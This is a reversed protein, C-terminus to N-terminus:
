HWLNVWQYFALWGVEMHDFAIGVPMQNKMAPLKAYRQSFHTLLVNKAKMKAAIDM